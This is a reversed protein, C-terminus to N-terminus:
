LFAISCSYDGLCVSLVELMAMIMFAVRTLNRQAVGGPAGSSGLAALVGLCKKEACNAHSGQLSQNRNDARCIAQAETLADIQENSAEPRTRDSPPNSALLIADFVLLPLLGERIVVSITYSPPPSGFFRAAAAWDDGELRTLWHKAHTLVSKVLTRCQRLSGGEVGDGYLIQTLYDETPRRYPSPNALQTVSPHLCLGFAAFPNITTAM